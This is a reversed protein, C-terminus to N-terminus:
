WLDVDGFGLARKALAFRAALVLHVFHGLVLRAFRRQIRLALPAVVALLRPVTPLRLGHEVLFRFRRFLNHQPQLALHAFRGVHVGDLPALM